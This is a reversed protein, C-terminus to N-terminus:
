NKPTDRLIEFTDPLTSIQDLHWNYSKKSKREVKSFLRHNPTVLVDVHNGFLNYLNGTFIGSFKDIYNHYEVKFTNTNFTALKTEKAIDAFKKFGQETLFETEETYCDYGCKAELLKRKENREDEWKKYARYDNLAQRYRKERIVIDKWEASAYEDPISLLANQHNAPIQTEEPLDYDKRSPKGKPNLLYGRHAKIKKLQAIAYGSFTFKAKKSLFMNRNERIRRWVPTIDTILPIGDKTKADDDIYLFEIINPNCNAALKLFKRLEQLEEDDKPNRVTGVSFNLDGNDVEQAQKLMEQAAAYEGLEVAKEANKILNAISGQGMFSTQFLDFAYKLPAIFVGRYDTDSESTNFGYAHSGSLYRFICNDLAEEYTM